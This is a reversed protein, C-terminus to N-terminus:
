LATMKVDGDVKSFRCYTMTSKVVMSVDSICIKTGAYVDGTVEVKAVNATQMVDEYSDYEAIMEELEAKREKQESLLTQMYMKQDMSLKEGKKLKQSFTDISPQAQEIKKKTEPIKKELFTIRAKIKPDIGVEIVTDAGMESGLTKVSVMNAACVRGGAIFGKKGSVMVDTGANVNSHMISDSAVYGGATVECSELFKAIVNNGAKLVGKDMGNMGRAIIIDTGAEITAGEVVGKVEVSGKAKVSFNECVNGLVVVSGEYEINGTSTNVNDLEMVDSLFVKGDVLSVHGNVEATMVTGDESVSINRGHKLIARKVSLPVIPEGFITMGAEGPVAQFLRALIDGKQCQTFTKLNFFDVSGDEKLAPKTNLETEFYYEIRAHTGQKVPTGNAVVVDTCYVRNNFFKKIANEDIGNKVGKQKLDNIFEDATLKGGKLSPPYFRATLTMKDSSSRLTYSERVESIFDKNLLILQDNKPSSQLAAIGQSIAPASYLIKQTSLYDIIEKPEIALGDDTPKTVKLITGGPTCGLQFYGNSM